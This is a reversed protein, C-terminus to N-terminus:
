ICARRIVMHSPLNKLKKLDLDEGAPFLTLLLREAYPLHSSRTPRYALLAALYRTDLLHDIFTM